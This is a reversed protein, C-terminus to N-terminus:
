ASGSRARCGMTLPRYKSRKSRRLPCQRKTSPRTRVSRTPSTLRCRCGEAVSSYDNGWGSGVSSFHERAAPATAPDGACRSEFSAVLGHPPRRDAKTQAPHAARAPKRACGFHSVRAPDRPTEVEGSVRPEGEEGVGGFGAGAGLVPQFEEIAPCGGDVGGFGRQGVFGSALRSLCSKIRARGAHRSRWGDCCRRACRRLGGPRRATKRAPKPNARVRPVAAGRRAANMSPLPASPRAQM